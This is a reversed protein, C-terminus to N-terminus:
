ISWSRRQAAGLAAEIYDAMEEATYSDRQPPLVFREIVFVLATDHDPYYMAEAAAEALERNTAQTLDSV